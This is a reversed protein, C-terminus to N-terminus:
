HSGSCHLPEIGLLAKTEDLRFVAALIHEYVDGGDLLSAHTIEGLTLLKVEIKLVILPASLRGSAVQLICLHIRSAAKAAEKKM